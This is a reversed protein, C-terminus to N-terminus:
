IKRKEILEITKALEFKIDRPNEGSKLRDEIKKIDDPHEDTCLDYYKIILSDPIKMCKEYMTNADENIGIYNGLSKSMKQEGDLGELLPMFLTLQPEQEFDKQVDAM